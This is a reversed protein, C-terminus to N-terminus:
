AFSEDASPSKDGPEKKRQIDKTKPQQEDKGKYFDDQMDENFDLDSHNSVPKSFDINRSKAMDKASEKIKSRNFYLVLLLVLIVFWNSKLMQFFNIYFPKGEKTELQNNVVSVIFAKLEDESSFFSSNTQGVTTTNIFTSQYYTENLYITNNTSERNNNTIITNNIITTVNTRDLTMNVTQNITLNYYITNNSYNINTITTTYNIIITNTSNFFSILDNCKNFDAVLSTNLGFYTECVETSTMANTLSSNLAMGLMLFIFIVLLGIGLSFYIKKDM